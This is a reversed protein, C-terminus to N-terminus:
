KSYVVMYVYFLIISYFQFCFLFVQFDVCRWNDRKMDSNIKYAIEETRPTEGSGTLSIEIKQTQTINKEKSASVILHAMAIIIATGCFLITPLIYNNHSRGGKEKFKPEPVNITFNKEEKEM